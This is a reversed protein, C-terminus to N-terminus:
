DFVVLAIDGFRSKLADIAALGSDAALVTYGYHQLASQAMKLVM